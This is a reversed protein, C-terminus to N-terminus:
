NCLQAETLAFLRSTEATMVIECLAVAQPLMHETYFAATTIKASLFAPDYAGEARPSAADDAQRVLLYASLVVGFLRLYSSACGAAELAAADVVHRTARDLLAVSRDLAQKLSAVEQQGSPQACFGHMESILRQWHRGQDRHLKRGVLDLAQLGNTGEYIPTIRVDRYHQAIGTEEIFGMGGFVQLALSAVEVGTDTAFAKTVPTLLDALGQAAGDEDDGSTARDIAAANLYAIARIGQTQARMMLIMRRVDPHEIIRVPAGGGVPASQVRECAYALAAQYAREAIAVGELGVHLRATNMMAFMARMGGNLEGVLWAICGGNDGYTMTCTPSAHIGLKHEISACTLDNRRQPRGEVDPIFKPVLFLSIGKTGAPSGPTRALVLHVINGALEHEGWTIFIKSGCIRWTGDEAPTAMTRLAGVDSGAQPETLNMTGTWEGSVLKPLYLARIEDSAFASLAEIAGSTLMMCLSFALNASALQESCAMAVSLPMGQGGFAPDASLSQWGGEVYRRYAEAFGPPHLVDGNSWRAGEVDGLRNLPAFVGASLRGAEELIAAHLAADENAVAGCLAAMSDLVFCQETVPPSYTM